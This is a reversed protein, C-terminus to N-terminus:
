LSNPYACRSDSVRDSDCDVKGRLHGAYVQSKAHLFQSHPQDQLEQSHGAAMTDVDAALVLRHGYLKRVTPTKRQTKSLVIDLFDAATPVPAIAELGKTASM